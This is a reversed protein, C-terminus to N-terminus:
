GALYRAWIIETQNSTLQARDVVAPGIPCMAWQFHPADPLRPWRGGWAFGHQTMIKAVSEFWSTPTNWYTRRHIIDVALGYSHWSRSWDFARTVIAMNPQAYKKPVNVLTLAEETRGKGYLFHVRDPTRYTEFVMADLKQEHMVAIAKDLAQRVKPALKGTDKSAPVNISM